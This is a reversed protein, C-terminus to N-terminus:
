GKRKAIDNATERNHSSKYGENHFRDFNEVEANNTRKSLKGANTFHEFVNIDSNECFKKAKDIVSKFRRWQKDELIIMLERAYWFEVGNKDVHKINNNTHTM